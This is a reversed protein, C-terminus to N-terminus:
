RTNRSVDIIFPHVTFGRPHLSHAGHACRCSCRASSIWHAFTKHSGNQAYPLCSARPQLKVAFDVRVEELLTKILDRERRVEAAQSAANGGLADHTAEAVSMGGRRSPERVAAAARPTSHVAAGHGDDGDGVHSKLTLDVVGGSNGVDGAGKDSGGSLFLVLTVLLVFAAAAAKQSRNSYQIMMCKRRIWSVMKCSSCHLINNTIGYISPCGSSVLTCACCFCIRMRDRRAAFFPFLLSYGYIWKLDLQLNGCHM